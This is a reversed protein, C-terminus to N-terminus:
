VGDLYPSPTHTMVLIPASPDFPTGNSSSHLWDLGVTAGDRCIVLQREDWRFWSHSSSFFFVSQFTIICKLFFAYKVTCALFLLSHFLCTTFRQHPLLSLFTHLSYLEKHYLYVIIRWLSCECRFRPKLRTFGVLTALDGSLCAWSPWIAGSM